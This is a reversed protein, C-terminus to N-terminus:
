EVVLMYELWGWPAETHRRYDHGDITIMITLSGTESLNYAALYALTGIKKQISIEWPSSLVDVIYMCDADLYEVRVSDADSVVKYTVTSTTDPGMVDNGNCAMVLLFLGLTVTVLRARNMKGMRETHQTMM